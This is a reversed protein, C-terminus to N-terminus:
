SDWEEPRREEAIPVRRATRQDAVIAAVVSFVSGEWEGSTVELFDNDALDAFEAPLHGVATAQEYTVGGIDVKHSGGDSSGSGSLRFPVHTDVVDWIPIREGTSENQTTRGTRRRITVEATLRVTETLERGLALAQDRIALLDSM